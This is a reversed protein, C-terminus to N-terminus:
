EDLMVPPMDGLICVQFFFFGLFKSVHPMGADSLRMKRGRMGAPAM